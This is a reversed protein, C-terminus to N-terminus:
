KAGVGSGSPGAVPAVEAAKELVVEPATEGAESLARKSEVSHHPLADSSRDVAASTERPAPAAGQQGVVGDSVDGASMQWEMLKTFAGNPRASLEKYTGQEAVKGESSLM